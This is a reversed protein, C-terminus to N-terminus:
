VPVSEPGGESLRTMFHWNYVEAAGLVTIQIQAVNYM